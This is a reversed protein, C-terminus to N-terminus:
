IEVLEEKSTIMDESDPSLTSKMDTSNNNNNNKKKAKM